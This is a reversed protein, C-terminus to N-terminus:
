QNRSGLCPQHSSSCSSFCLKRSLHDADAYTQRKLPLAIKEWRNLSGWIMQFGRWQGFGVAPLYGTAPRFYLCISQTLPARLTGFSNSHTESHFLCSSHTFLQFQHTTKKVTLTMYNNSICFLSPSSLFCSNKGSSFSHSQSERNSRPRLVTWSLMGGVEWSRCFLWCTLLGGLPNAKETTVRVAAPERLNM